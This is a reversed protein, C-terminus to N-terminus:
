FTNGADGRPVARAPAHLHEGRRHHLGLGGLEGAHEMIHAVGFMAAGPTVAVSRRQSVRTPVMPRDM